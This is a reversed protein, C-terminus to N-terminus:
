CIKLIKKLKYFWIPILYNSIKLQENMRYEVSAIKGIRM